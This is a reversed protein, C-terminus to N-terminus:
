NNMVASSVVVLSRSGDDLLLIMQASQGTQQFACASVNGCITETQLTEKPNLRGYEIYLENNTGYLRAYRDPTAQNLDQYYSVEISNPNQGLKLNESM